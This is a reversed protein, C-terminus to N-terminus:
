DKDWYSEIETYYSERDAVLYRVAMFEQFSLHWFEYHGMEFKLLGCNQEVATFKQDLRQRYQIDTEEPERGYITLADHRGFERMEKSHITFAQQSLFSLVKESDDFRKFILNEVFQKYLEARQEPLRGGNHYLICIATLMLPTELLKSITLHARIESIVEGATKVDLGSEAPYIYKIWNGIFTEIQGETLNNIRIHRDGFRQLVHTDEVGHHRGTLVMRCGYVSRLDALSVVVKDRLAVEMEDLGDILFLARGAQCFAKVLAINLGNDTEKFYETLIKEGAAASGTMIDLRRVITQLDKLYILVPLYGELGAVSENKIMTYTLHKLLTSKGSGAQGEILLYDSEAIMQEIDVAQRKERLMEKETKRDAEKGEPPDAYLPIFLQPMQVLIVRDKSDLLRSVDMTECRDIVWRKYKSPIELPVPPNEVIPRSPSKSETLPQHNQLWKGLDASVIFKLESPDKFESRLYEDSRKMFAGLKKEARGREIM